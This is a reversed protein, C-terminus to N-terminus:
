KDFALASRVKSWSAGRVEKCLYREKRHDHRMKDKIYRRIMYIIRLILKSIYIKKEVRQPYRSILFWGSMILTHGSGLM